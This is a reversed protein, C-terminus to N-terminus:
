MSAPAVLVPPNKVVAQEAAYDKIAKLRKRQPDKDDLWKKTAAGSVVAALLAYLAAAKGSTSLISPLVGGSDRDAYKDKRTRQYESAILSDLDNRATSIKKDLRKEARSAALMSALKWGLVSGGAAAGLTLAPHSWHYRPDGLGSVLGGVDLPHDQQPMVNLFRDLFAQLRGSDKRASLKDLGLAREREEDEPSASLDPSFLPYRANAYARLKKLRKDSSSPELLGGVGRAAMGLAIYGALIGAAHKLAVEARRDKKDAM